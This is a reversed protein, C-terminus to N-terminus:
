RNKAIKEPSICWSYARCSSIRSAGYPGYGIRKAGDDSVATLERGVVSQMVVATAPLGSYPKSLYGIRHISNKFDAPKDPGSIADSGLKRGFRGGLAAGIGAGFVSGYMRGDSPDLPINSYGIM